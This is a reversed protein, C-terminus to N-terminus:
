YIWTSIQGGLDELSKGKTETIYRWVVFALM